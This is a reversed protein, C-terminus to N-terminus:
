RHASREPKTKSLGSKTKKAFKLFLSDAGLKNTLWVEAETESITKSEEWLDEFLNKSSGVALSPFAGDDFEGFGVVWLKSFLAKMSKEYVREFFKGRLDAAVKIQKTSQPSDSELVELIQMAEKPLLFPDSTATGLYALLHTFTEKSLFTARGQYWKAYIVERTTALNTKLQWLSAVRDDGNSDWEWRMKDTYFESWISAPLERNDLPYVLLAGCKHIAKIAQTQTISKASKSAGM